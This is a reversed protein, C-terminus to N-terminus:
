NVDLSIPGPRSCVITERGYAFVTTSLLFLAGGALLFSLLAYAQYLRLLRKLM